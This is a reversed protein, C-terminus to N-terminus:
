AERGGSEVADKNEKAVGRHGIPAETEGHAARSESNKGVFSFAVQCVERMPKARAIAPVVEIAIWISMKGVSSVM